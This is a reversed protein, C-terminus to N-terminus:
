AVVGCEGAPRAPVVEKGEDYMAPCSTCVREMLPTYYSECAVSGRGAIIGTALSLKLAGMLAGAMRGVGVRFVPGVRAMGIIVMISVVLKLACKLGLPGPRSIEM